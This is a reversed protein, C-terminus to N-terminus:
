QVAISPRYTNVPSSTVIANLPLPLTPGRFFSCFWGLYWAANLHSHGKYSLRLM